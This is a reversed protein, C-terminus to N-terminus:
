GQFPYPLRRTPGLHVPAALRAQTMLNSGHAFNDNTFVRLGGLRQQGLSKGDYVPRGLDAYDLLVRSGPVLGLQM